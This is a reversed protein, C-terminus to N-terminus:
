LLGAVALSDEPFGVNSIFDILDRKMLLNIHWLPNNQQLIVM